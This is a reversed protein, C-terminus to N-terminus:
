VLLITPLTLHTYSVTASRPSSPAACARRASSSSARSASVSLWFAASSVVWLRWPSSVLRRRESSSALARAFEARLERAIRRRARLERGGEEGGRLRRRCALRRRRRQKLRGAGLPRARAALEDLRRLLLPLQLELSPQLALLEARELLAVLEQLVLDGRLVLPEAGRRALRGLRARGLPLLLRSFASEGLGGGRGLM